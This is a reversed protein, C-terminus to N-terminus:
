TLGIKRLMFRENRHREVPEPHPTPIRMGRSPAPGTLARPTSSNSTRVEHPTQVWAKAPSAPQLGSGTSLGTPAAQDTEQHLGSTARPLDEPSATTHCERTRRVLVMQLTSVAYSVLEAFLM